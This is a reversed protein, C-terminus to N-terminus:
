LFREIEKIYQAATLIKTCEYDKYYCDKFDHEYTYVWNSQCFRCKLSEDPVVPFYNWGLVDKRYPTRYLPEVTTFGGIIPVETCAALHLLGNDLGIVAKAGSMIKTGEFLDTDNILNLGEKYNVESSFAGKISKDDIGVKTSEKGLFVINQGKIRLYKIINNVHEPLFERVKATFGTTIVFYSDPLKFHSIDVESLDPKLYNKFEPGVAKNVLISFANDTQHTALNTHGHISFARAYFHQKYKDKDKFGRVVLNKHKGLCNEAFDKFYDPVWTHFTAHPHHDVMYKIAPLRGICDGLVAMM